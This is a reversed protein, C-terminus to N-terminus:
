FHTLNEMLGQGVDSMPTYQSAVENMAVCLCAKVPLFNNDEYDCRRIAGSQWKTMATREIDQTIQGLFDQLNEQFKQDTM